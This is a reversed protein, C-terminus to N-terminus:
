FDSTQAYNAVTEIEKLNRKLKKWFINLVIYYAIFLLTAITSLAVMFVSSNVFFLWFFLSILVFVMLIAFLIVQVMLVIKLMRPSKSLPILIAFALSAIAVGVWATIIIAYLFFAAVSFFIFFITMVASDEIDFGVFDFNSPMFGALLGFTVAILACLVCLTIKITSTKM